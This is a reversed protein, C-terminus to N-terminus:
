TRKSVLKVTFILLVVVIVVVAVVAAVVATPMGSLSESINRWIYCM